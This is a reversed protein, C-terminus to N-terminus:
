SPSEPNPTNNRHLRNPFQALKQATIRTKTNQTPAIAPGASPHDKDRAQHHRLALEPLTHYKLLSIVRIQRIFLDECNENRPSGRKRM